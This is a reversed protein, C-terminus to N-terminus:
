GHQTGRAAGPHAERQVAGRQVRVGGDSIHHGVPFPVQQAKRLHRRVAAVVVAAVMVVLSMTAGVALDFGGVTMSITCGLGVVAIPERAAAEMRAVKREAAEVALFARKIPSLGEDSRPMETM